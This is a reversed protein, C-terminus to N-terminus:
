IGLIHKHLERSNKMYTQCFIELSNWSDVLIACLFLYNRYFIQSHHPHLKTYTHTHSVNHAKTPFYNEFCFSTCTIITHRINEGCFEYFNVKFLGNLLFAIKQHTLLKRSFWFLCGKALAIKVAHVLRQCYYKCFVALSLSLSGRVGQCLTWLFLSCLICLGLGGFDCAILSCGCQILCLCVNMFGCFIATPFFLVSCWELLVVHVGKFFVSLPAGSVFCCGSVCASLAAQCVFRCSLCFSFCFM